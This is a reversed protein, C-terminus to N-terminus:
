YFDLKSTTIFYNIVNTNYYHKSFVIQNGKSFVDHTVLLLLDSAGVQFTDKRNKSLTPKFTTSVQDFEHRVWKEYYEEVLETTIKKQSMIDKAIFFDQSLVAPVDDAMHVKLLMGIKDGPKVHLKEDLFKENPVISYKKSSCSYKKGDANIVDQVFIGHGEPRLIRDNSKSSVFTGKGRMTKIYGDEQLVLLAMRVTYRAVGLYEALENESPIKDGVKLEKNNILNLIVDYVSVYLPVKPTRYNIILEKNCLKRLTFAESNM